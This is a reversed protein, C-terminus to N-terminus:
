VTIDFKEQLHWEYPNINNDYEHFNDHSLLSVLLRVFALPCSAAADRATSLANAEKDVYCEMTLLAVNGRGRNRKRTEHDQDRQEM